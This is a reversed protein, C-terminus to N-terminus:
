LSRTTHLTIRTTARLLILDSLYHVMFADQEYFKSDVEPMYKNGTVDNIIYIYQVERDQLWTLLIIDITHFVWLASKISQM